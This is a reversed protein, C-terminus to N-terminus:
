GSKARRGGLSISYSLLLGALVGPQGSCREVGVVALLGMYVIEGIRSM